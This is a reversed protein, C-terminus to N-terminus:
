LQDNEEEESDLFKEILLVREFQWQFQLVNVLCLRDLHGLNVTSYQETRVNERRAHTWCLLFTRLRLRTDPSLGRYHALTFRTIDTPALWARFIQEKPLQERGYRAVTLLDFATEGSHTVLSTDAGALLLLATMRASAHTVAEHLPTWDYMPDNTANVNAGARLLARVCDLNDCCVAEHLLTRGFMADNRWSLIEKVNSILDDNIDNNEIVLQNFDNTSRDSTRVFLRRLVATRTAGANANACYSHLLQRISMENWNEASIVRLRSM